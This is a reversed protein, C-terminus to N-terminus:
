TRAYIQILIQQCLSGLALDTNPGTQIIAFWGPQPSKKLSPSICCHKM